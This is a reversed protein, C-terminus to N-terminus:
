IKIKQSKPIKNKEDIVEFILRGKKGSHKGGLYITQRGFRSIKEMIVAGMYFKLYGKGLVVRKVKKPTM